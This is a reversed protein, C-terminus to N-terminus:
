TIQIGLSSFSVAATQWTTGSGVQKPSSYYTTNGLGLVGNTGQGWSWLTGDTKLALVSGGNNGVAVYVKSWSTLAGVQKPSSYGTTNGLGLTGAFNRGGVAWLTGDTKTALAYGYYGAIELWNTLSGVQKPSSYNTLNNLGLEGYAGLGWSWLTGDTKIAYSNFYGASVKLWATLSGIQVPSSYNTVNNLGLQGLAGNGWAWLTGDTKTALSYSRGSSIQYWNTQAGVQKPSSYGTTNGIGLQGFNNAGWTWLTGDTKIASSNNSGGCSVLSWNTLSGVQKPSSYGTTNGLGLKGSTNAGWVWLTGDTKIAMSSIDGTSVKSWTILAGVQQPTSFSTTNGLGLQGSSGDGWSYLKPAPPVPWTSAAIAANVQQMTWIGSYQTYPYVATAM